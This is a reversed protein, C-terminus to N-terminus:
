AESGALRDYLHLTETATKEWSFKAAQELGKGKMEAALDEQVITAIISGGFGRADGPDLAFGAEGVVEPLSSSNSSVM